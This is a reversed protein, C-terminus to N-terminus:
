MLKFNKLVRIAEDLSSVQYKWDPQNFPSSNPYARKMAETIISAFFGAFQKPTIQGSELYARITDEDFGKLRQKLDSFDVVQSTGPAKDSVNGGVLAKYRPDEVSVLEEEGTRRNKLYVYGRTGPGMESESLTWETDEAVKELLADVWAAHRVLGHDELNSALKALKEAIHTM